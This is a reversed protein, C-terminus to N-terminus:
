INKIVDLFFDYTKFGEPVFFLLSANIKITNRWFLSNQELSIKNHLKDDEIKDTILESAKWEAEWSDNFSFIKINPHDNYYQMDNNINKIM